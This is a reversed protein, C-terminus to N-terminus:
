HPRTGHGQYSPPKIEALKRLYVRGMHHIGEVHLLPRGVSVSSAGDETHLKTGLPPANDSRAGEGGGRGSIGSFHRPQSARSRQPM